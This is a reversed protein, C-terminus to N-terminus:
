WGGSVTGTTLTFGNCVVSIDVGELPNGNDKNTVTGNITTPLGGTAFASVPLIIAIGVTALISLLLKKM